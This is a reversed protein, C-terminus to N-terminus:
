LDCEIWGALSGAALAGYTVNYTEGPYVVFSVRPTANAESGANSGYFMWSDVTIGGATAVMAASSNDINSVWVTVIRVRSGNTYSTGSVRATSNYSARGSPTALNTAVIGTLAAGSIAPLSGTLAGAPIATLLAGSIAPLAGTLAGAPIATLLAGSIAPLAGTLNPAPIATLLAGSIAPISVLTPNPLTGGLCGGLTVTEMAAVAGTLIGAYHQGDVTDADFGNGSGQKIGHVAVSATVDRNEHANLRAVLTSSVGSEPSTHADVVEQMSSLYVRDDTVNSNTITSVGEGVLVQALALSNASVAPAVPVQAPTGVVASLANTGFTIEILDIRSLYYNYAATVTGGGPISGGGLRTIQGTTYNITFDTNEVYGTVAVSGARIAHQNGNEAFQQVNGSAFSVAEGTVAVFSPATIPVTTAVSVNATIGALLAAGTAVSVGLSPSATQSVAMANLYGSYVGTGHLLDSFASQPNTGFQIDELTKINISLNNTIDGSTVTTANAPVLVTALMMFGSPVAPASPTASPTGHIVSFLPASQNLTNTSQTYLVPPSVTDNIFTKVQPTNATKQYSVCVIDIRPNTADAAQGTGWINAAPNAAGSIINMTAITALSYFLGGAQTFVGPIVNCAGDVPSDANVTGGSVRYSGTFLLAQIMEYCSDEASQALAQAEALDLQQFNSLLVQM